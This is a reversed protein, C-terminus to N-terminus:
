VINGAVIQSANVNKLVVSETTATYPGAAALTVILTDAGATNSAAVTFVTGASNLSGSIAYQGNAVTTGIGNNTIAGATTLNLRDGGAGATFDTIVDYTQGQAVAFSDTATLDTNTGTTTVTTAGSLPTFTDVGEGGIMSDGFAGGIITDAGDGGFITDAAAGGTLQDAGKDGSMVVAFISTAGAGANIVDAGEGGFITAASSGSTSMAAGAFVTITDDGKNGNVLGGSITVGNNAGTAGLTITDNGQGAYLKSTTLTLGAAVTITDTGANGNVTASTLAGNINFTDDGLNGQLKSSGMAVGITSIDNGQGLEATVSSAANTIFNVIDADAQAGIYIPATVSLANLSVTDVGSTGILSTGGAGTTTTFAM